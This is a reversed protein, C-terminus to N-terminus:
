SENVESVYDCCGNDIVNHAHGEHLPYQRRAKVKNETDRAQALDHALEM